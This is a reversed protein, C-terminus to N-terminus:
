EIRIPSEIGGNRTPVSQSPLNTSIESKATEDKQSSFSPLKFIEDLKVMDLQSLQNLGILILIFLLVIFILGKFFKGGKSKRPRTDRIKPATAYASPVGILKDPEMDVTAVLDDANLGLLNAYSRIYGKVFTYGPLAGYDDQEMARVFGIDLNLTNAVQEISLDAEERALFLINGATKDQFLATPETPPTDSNRM